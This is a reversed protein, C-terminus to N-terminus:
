KGMNRDFSDSHCPSENHSSAIFENFSHAIIKHISETYHIRDFFMYSNPESCVTASSICSANINSIGYALPSEVIDDIVAYVDFVQLNLADNSADIKDAVALLNRNYEYGLASLNFLFSLPQLGPVIQLPPQNFLVIHKAGLRIIDKVAEVISGIIAAGTINPNRLFNNAGAWIVYLTKEFVIANKDILQSYHCIQQRVGPVSVNNATFGQIADNDTTAGGYAYNEVSSAKLLDAWIPGNSYRGNYFPSTPYSGNTLKFVNGNDSSSDGFIVIKDYHNHVGYIACCYMLIQVCCLKMTQM